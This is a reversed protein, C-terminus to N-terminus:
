IKIENVTTTQIIDPIDKSDGYSERIADIRLRAKKAYLNQLNFFHREMKVLNGERDHDNLIPQNPWDKEDINKFYLLTKYFECAAVYNMTQNALAQSFWKMELAIEYNLLTNKDAM